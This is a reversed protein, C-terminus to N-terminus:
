ATDMETSLVSKWRQLTILATEDQILEYFTVDDRTLLVRRYPLHALANRFITLNIYIGSIDDPSPTFGDRIQALLELLDLSVALEAPKTGTLRQGTYVLLIRDPTYELYDSGTLTPVTLQFDEKAFLRFSKIAAKTSQGARLCVYERALSQRAGEAMSIGEILLQHLDVLQQASRDTQTVERFTLLKQYPLMTLWGDRRDFFAIRRLMRHWVLHENAAGPQRSAEWGGPLRQDAVMSDLLAPHRQEFGLRPVGDIGQFHLMRDTAPNAVLGPDIQRLLRVLRDDSRDPPLEIDSAYANYYFRALLQAPEPQTNLLAAVDDCSHDQFLLWSLASRLDRMTIHLQRRLHVIEFLTRLRERIATGSAPDALSDVNFKIFCHEKLACTQCPTWFQPQLLKLLQREFISPLEHVEDAAVISRKNLDVILLWDPLSPEHEPNFFATIHQALHYFGTAGSSDNFFDILRGENIAIVYVGRNAAVQDVQTDAFPTFFETLVQDNARTEGEDQSGDYNTTFQVGHYTFHSSNTTPRDIHGSAQVVADELSQIFATKGDGANGTIIVLRYQGNLVAPQLLRDLRTDVYTLRTIQDLGRTGSNDRRAQSYLTLFRSVYPNYNPRHQEWSELDLNITSKRTGAIQLYLGDLAVLDHSLQRASHYRRQPDCSVAKLMIEALEPRLERVYTRPDTPTDEANPQGDPYPHHGTVIEYLVIGTAFLDGDTSWPLMGIEPLMYGQTGVWTKHADRARAAINFDILKLGERCLMLNAPKIDRHLWGQEQLEGFEDYEEGTIDGQEMKARLETLRDVNPHIAILAELLNLVADIAQKVPLRQEPNTYKFLEDGDVFESILYFRGSRPLKGWGYVKVIYPHNIALLTRIEKKLFDLALATESFVKLAYVQDAIGDYVQYVRGSGGAQLVRQVQYKGDIINSVEFVAPEIDAASPAPPETSPLPAEQPLTGSPKERISKLEALVEAASQPRQTSDPKTLRAVLDNLRVPIDAIDFAAPGGLSTNAQAAEEPTEYLTDGTLMEFLIVGLGYLDAAPTPTLGPHALEPALYARPVDPDAPPPGVSVNDSVMLRAHDFNMLRPQGKDDILINEPRIDRHIVEGEHSAKLGAAIGHALELKRELSLLSDGSLLTRLTGDESWDTVEVLLNPDNPDTFLTNFTILNPHPGIKQLAEAERRIVKNHRDLEAPPLYPTYSFVRLRVTQSSPLLDNRALYEAVHDRRSLVELVRYDGFRLPQVQRGRVAQQIASELYGRQQRLNHARDGLASPDALFAPLDPYRFVRAKCQGHLNIQGRDDALAVVAEVWVEIAPQHRKIHSKLVRAKNNTTPLPNPRQHQGAVWWTYDDGHLGGLWRKIEVVYVAHPAVVIVDYDFPPRGSEAIEVNPIVSYTDPLTEQLHQIVLREGENVPRAGPLPIFKAM